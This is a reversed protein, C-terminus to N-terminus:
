KDPVFSLPYDITLPANYRPPPFHLSGIRAGVCGALSTSNTDNKTVKSALVDGTGAIDITFILEGGLKPNNTRERDYCTRLDTSATQFAADLQARSLYGIVKDGQPPVFRMPHNLTVAKGKYPAPFKLGKAITAACIDMESDGLGQLVKAASVAGTDGITMQVVMDGKLNPNRGLAVDYCTRKVRTVADNMVPDTQAPTLGTKGEMPDPDMVIIVVVQYYSQGKNNVAFAGVGARAPVDSDLKVEKAVAAADSGAVFQYRYGRLALKQEKVEHDLESAAKPDTAATKAYKRAFERLATDMVFVPKTASEGRGKNLGELVKNEFGAAQLTNASGLGAATVACLLLVSLM